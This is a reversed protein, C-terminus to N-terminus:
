GPQLFLEFSAQAAHSGTELFCSSLHPHPRLVILRIGTLVDGGGSIRIDGAHHCYLVLKAIPTNMLDLLLSHESKCYFIAAAAMIVAMIGLNSGRPTSVDRTQTAVEWKEKEEGRIGSEGRRM